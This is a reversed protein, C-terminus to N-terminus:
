VFLSALEHCIQLSEGYISRSPKKKFPLPIPQIEDFFQDLDNIYVPKRYNLRLPASDASARLPLKM